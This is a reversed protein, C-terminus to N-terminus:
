AAVNSREDPQMAPTHRWERWAVVALALAQLAFRVSFGVAAGDAGAVLAGALVLVTGLVGPIWLARVVASEKNDRYLLIMLTYMVFGPPVALLMIRVTAVAPQYKAGFLLPVILPACLIGVLAAAIGVSGVLSIVAKRMRAASNGATLHPFLATAAIGPILLSTTVVQFGLAFYSAAVVSVLGVVATDLRPFVATAITNGAFPAGSRVLSLPRDRLPPRDQATGRLTRWYDFALRLIGALVFAASVGLVGGNLALVAVVVPLLVFKEVIFSAILPRFARRSRFETELSTAAALLSVYVLFGGQALALPLSLGLLAAAATVVVALVVGMAGITYMARWLRDRAASSGRNAEHDQVSERLLWTPLGTDLAFSLAQSFGLFSSFIGFQARTLNRALLIMVVTATGTLLVQSAYLVASDRMWRSLWPPSQEEPPRQNVDSESASM